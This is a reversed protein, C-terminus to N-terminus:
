MKTNETKNIIVSKGKADINHDMGFYAAVRHVLMRHYSTMEPFRMFMNRYVFIKYITFGPLRVILVCTCFVHIIPAKEVKCSGIIMTTLALDRGPAQHELDFSCIKGRTGLM